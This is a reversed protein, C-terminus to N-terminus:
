ITRVVGKNAPRDGPEPVGFFMRFCAYSNLSLISSNISSVCQIMSLSARDAPHVMGCCIMDRLSLM